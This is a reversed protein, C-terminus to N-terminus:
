PASPQQQQQQQAYFAESAVRGQELQQQSLLGALGQGDLLQHQVLWAHVDWLMGLTTPISGDLHKLDTRGLLARVGGALQKMDLKAVAYCVGIAMGTREFVPGPQQVLQQTRRLVAPMLLEHKYQLERCAYSVQVMHSPGSSSLWVPAIAAARDVFSAAFMGTKAVARMSNSIHQPEWRDLNQAVKGQLLQLACRQATEQDVAPVAPAAPASLRGLALLNNSVHQPTGSSAVKGVQQEDLLRQWVRQEVQPQWSCRQQLESVAWLTNSLEQPQVAELMAPRAMAQLLSNLAADTPNIRLKAIAWLTNSLGQPDVREM